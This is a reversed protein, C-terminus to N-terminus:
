CLLSSTDLPHHQVARRQKSPPELACLCSRGHCPEPSEPATRMRCGPHWRPGVISVPEFVWLYCSWKFGCNNLSPGVLTSVPTYGTGLVSVASLLIYSRRAQQLHPSVAVTAPGFASRHATNKVGDKFRDGHCDSPSLIQSRFFFFFFILDNREFTFVMAQMVLCRYARAYFKGISTHVSVSRNERTLFMEKECQFFGFPAWLRFIFSM